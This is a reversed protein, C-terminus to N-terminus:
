RVVEVGDGVAITGDRDHIANMAFFVKGPRDPDRRTEAMTRLPEPGRAATDPDVTTIACRSCPKVLHVTIEGIRLARVHDEAWADWGEIVINPRFREMALKTGSQRELDALSAPNAVLLPFADAFGVRAGPRVREAYEPPVARVSSPPFAVLKCEMGLVRTLLASAARSPEVARVTDNWVVVDRAEGAEGPELPLRVVSGDEARLILSEGDIATRVLTMTPIERQTLFKGDRDVVLFRRDHRVGLADLEVREVRMGRLSKVPHRWLEAVRLAM